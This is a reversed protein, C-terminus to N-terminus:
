EIHHLLGSELLPNLLIEKAYERAEQPSDAPFACYRDNELLHIWDVSDDNFIAEVEGMIKPNFRVAQLYGEKASEESLGTEVSFYFALIDRIIPYESM